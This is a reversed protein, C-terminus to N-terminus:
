PCGNEETTQSTIHAALQAFLRNALWGTLMSPTVTVGFVQAAPNIREAVHLNPLDELIGYQFALRRWVGPTVIVPASTRLWRALVRAIAAFKFRARCRDFFGEVDEEIQCAAWSRALQASHCGHRFRLIVLHIHAWTWGAPPTGAQRGAASALAPVQDRPCDLVDASVQDQDRCLAGFVVGRSIAEHTLDSRRLGPVLREVEEWSRGDSFHYIAGVIGAEQGPAVGLWVENAAAVVDAVSHRLLCDVYPRDSVTLEEHLETEFTEGKRSRLEDVLRSRTAARVWSWWEQNSRYELAHRRTWVTMLVASEVDELLDQSVGQHGLLTRVFVGLGVALRDFTARAVEEPGRLREIDAATIM